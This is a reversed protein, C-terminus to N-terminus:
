RGNVIIPRDSTNSARRITCSFRSMFFIATNKLRPQQMWVVWVGKVAGGGRGSQCLLKRSQKSANNKLTLVVDRERAIEESQAGAM